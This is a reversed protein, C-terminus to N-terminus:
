EARGRNLIKVAESRYEAAGEEPSVTGALVKNKIRTFANNVSTSSSPVPPDIPKVQTKLKEIYLYQEQNAADQKAFLRDAIKSAM